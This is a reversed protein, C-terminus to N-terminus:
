PLHISVDVTDGISLNYRDRKRSPITVRGSEGVKADYIHIKNGNKHIVVDIFDEHAINHENRYHKKLTFQGRKIIKAQEIEITEDKSETDSQNTTSADTETM